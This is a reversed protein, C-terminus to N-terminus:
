KKETMVKPIKREFLNEIWEFKSLIMYFFLIRLWYYWLIIIRSTFFLKFEIYCLFINIKPYNIKKKIDKPDIM